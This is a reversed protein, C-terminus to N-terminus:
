PSFKIGCPGGSNKNVDKVRADGLEDWYSSGFYARPFLHRNAAYANLDALQIFYSDYSKRFSPDEIICSAPRSLVQGKDYASSVYNIRRMKRILTSVFRPDGEDPFIVCTENAKSTFREIREIMMKWAVERISWQSYKKVWKEKDVAVAWTKITGTKCQLRLTMRYIKMRIEEPIGEFTGTAHILFGAKIEDRQRVGFTNALFRRFRKLNDLTQLWDKDHVIVCSLVFAETPSGKSPLGTDGSDDIYILYMKEESKIWGNPQLSNRIAHYLSPLSLHCNKLTITL